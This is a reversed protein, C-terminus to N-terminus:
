PSTVVRVNPSIRYGEDFRELAGAFGLRRLRSIVVYVRNRAAEFIPREGPWGAEVLEWVDLTTGPADLRARALALAVRRQARALPQRAGGSPEIWIADPGLLLTRPAESEPPEDSDWDASPAKAGGAFPPSRGDPDLLRRITQTLGEPDLPSDLLERIRVSVRIAEEIPPRDAPFNHLIQTEFFRLHKALEDDGPALHGSIVRGVMPLIDLHVLYSRLWLLLAVYDGMPSPPSGAAVEPASFVPEGAEVFGSEDLAAVNHGFGFAALRGDRAFLLNGNALVGLCSPGGTADDRAAHGAQLAHRLETGLTDGIAYPLRVRTEALLRVMEFGDVDAPFDLCVWPVGADSTGHSLTKPVLSHDIAAHARALKGLASAARDRDHPKPSFVVTVPAQDELRRCAVVHFAGRSRIPMPTTFSGLFAGNKARNTQM